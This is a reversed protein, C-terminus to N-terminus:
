PRLAELQRLLLSSGLLVWSLLDWLRLSDGAALGHWVWWVGEALLALGGLLAAPGIWRWRQRASNLAQSLAPAEPAAFRVQRLLLAASLLLVAMLVRGLAKQAAGESLEFGLLALQFLVAARASLHLSQSLIV